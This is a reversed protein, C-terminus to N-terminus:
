CRHLAHRVVFLLRSPSVQTRGASSRCWAPRSSCGPRCAARRRSSWRTHARDGNEESRACSQQRCVRGGAARAGAEDGDVFERVEDDVADGVEVVVLREVAHQEFRLLILLLPNLSGFGHPLTM